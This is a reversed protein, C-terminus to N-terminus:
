RSASRPGGAPCGVIELSPKGRGSHGSQARSCPVAADSPRCGGSFSGNGNRWNEAVLADFRYVGGALDKGARATALARLLQRVREPRAIELPSEGPLIIFEWRRLAGPGRVFTAPRAPDCFQINTEPLHADDTLLIDLVLWPENFGLDELNISMAKRLFSGAGDCGVVYRSRFSQLRDAGAVKVDIAPLGGLNYVAVVESSLRVELNSFDRARERLLRELGPQVFTVYSPWASASFTRRQCCGACFRDTLPAINLLDIPESSRRWESPLASTRFYECRRM